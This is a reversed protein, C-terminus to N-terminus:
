QYGALDSCSGIVRNRGGAKAQYLAQDAKKIFSSFSDKASPIASFIGISTSISDPLTKFQFNCVAIRIREAIETAIAHSTDYLVILFEEGGYRIFLDNPRLCSAILHATASLVEDGTDHGFRDNVRKFHDLDIMLLSLNKLNRRAKEFSFNGQIRLSHRNRAGTLSDTIAMLQMDQYLSAKEIAMAVHSAFMEATQLISESYFNPSTSDLAMLGIVENNAILPLGLWSLVPVEGPVQLFDPFEEPLNNCIVPKRSQLAKTGPSNPVPFRFSLKLTEAENKFGYCGIVQLVNAQMLQVSAKDYPIVRRTHQLILTVTENLDLSCSLDNSVQRITEIELLRKLNDQETQKIATVDRDHGIIMAPSGDDLRSIVRLSSALWRWQGDRHQVRLTAEFREAKGSALDQIKKTLVIRDEPHAHNLLGYALMDKETYGLEQWTASAFARQNQYDIGFLGLSSLGAQLQPNRFLIDFDHLSDLDMKNRTETYLSPPLHVLWKLSSIRRLHM